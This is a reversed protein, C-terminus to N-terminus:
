PCPAQARRQALHRLHAEFAAHRGTQNTSHGRVPPHPYEGTPCTWREPDVLACDTRNVLEGPAAAAAPFPTDGPPVLDGDAPDPAYRCAGCPEAPSAPASWLPWAFVDTRAYM